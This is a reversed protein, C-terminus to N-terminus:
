ILSTASHALEFLGGSPEIALFLEHTKELCMQAKHLMFKLQEHDSSSLKGQHFFLSTTNLSAGLFQATEYLHDSVANFAVACLQNDSM